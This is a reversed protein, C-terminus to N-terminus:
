ALSSADCAVVALGCCVVWCVLLRAGAERLGARIVSFNSMFRLVRIVGIIWFITILESIRFNSYGMVLKIV